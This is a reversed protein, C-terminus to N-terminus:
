RHESRGSFAVHCDATSRRERRAAVDIVTAFGACGSSGYQADVRSSSAAPASGTQAQGRCAAAPRAEVDTRRREHHEHDSKMGGPIPRSARADRAAARHDGHTYSGSWAPVASVPGRSRSASVPSRHKMSVCSWPSGGLAECGSAASRPLLQAGREAVGAHVRELKASRRRGRRRSRVSRPGACAGCGVSAAPPPARLVHRPKFPHRLVCDREQPGSKGSM